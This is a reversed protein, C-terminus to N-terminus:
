RGVEEAAIKAAEAETVTARGGCTPCTVERPNEARYDTIWNEAIEYTNVESLNANLVDSYFSAGLEPANDEISREIESALAGIADADDDEVRCLEEVREDWYSDSGEENRAWLAWIWTGYNTWGNYGREDRSM